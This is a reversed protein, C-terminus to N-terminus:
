VKLSLPRQQGESEMLRAGFLASDIYLPCQTVVDIAKQGPYGFLSSSSQFTTDFRSHTGQSSHTFSGHYAESPALLGCHTVDDDCTESPPGLVEDVLLNRDVLQSSNALYNTKSM